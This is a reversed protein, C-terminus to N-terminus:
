IFFLLLFISFLFIFLLYFFFILILFYIIFFLIFFLYYIFYKLRKSSELINVSAKYEFLRKVFDLTLNSKQMLEGVLSFDSLYSNPDIKKELFYIVLELPPAEYSEVLLLNEITIPVQSILFDLHELNYDGEFSSKIISQIVNDNIKAKYEILLKITEIPVKQSVAYSVIHKGSAKEKINAKNTILYRIYENSIKKSISFFLIKNTDLNAKHDVLLKVFELPFDLAKAVIPIKMDCNNPNMKQELLFGVVSLSIKQGMNKEFYDELINLRKLNTININARHNLFLSFLEKIEEESKEKNRLVSFLPVESKYDKFNPVAKNLLLYEIKQLQSDTKSCLYHLITKKKKTYINLSSKKDILIKVYIAPIKNNKCAYFLFNKNNNTREDFDTTKEIFYNIVEFYPNEYSFLLHLEKKGGRNITAKNESLFKVIEIPYRNQM